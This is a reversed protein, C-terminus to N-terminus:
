RRARDAGRERRQTQSPWRRRRSSRQRRRARGPMGYAAARDALDTLKATESIPTMESWDNNEVVFVVPLERVAAFNLGEHTAGQNMAGDGISVICVRQRHRALKAALAVGAAIPVGAGVISNEGIFGHQPAM